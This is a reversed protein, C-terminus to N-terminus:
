ERHRRRMAPGCKGSEVGSTGSNGHSSINVLHRTINEEREEQGGLAKWVVGLPEGM